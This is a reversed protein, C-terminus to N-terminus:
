RNEPMDSTNKDEFEIEFSINDLNRFWIFYLCVSSAAFIGCAIFFSFYMKIQFLMILMYMSVIWCLGFPLALLDNRHEIRMKERLSPKLRERFPKWFGFPKTKLYYQELVQRDTPKSMLTATICCVATASFLTVFQLREDLGPMFLRQLTAFLIGSLTGVSFGNANFRWWYFKLISPVMLGANLGMVIWGWIDNISKLTFAFLFGAAVLVFTFIYSAFILEKNSAKPRIVNQYLDRTFFGAAANVVSDFSCMSSAVLAVMIIGRFGSPIKAFLVGPMIAEPNINGQFSLMKVKDVWNDGLLQRLGTILDQYKDPQLAITNVIDTWRLETATPIATKIMDAAQSMVGLDPFYDKVLFIGLIAFAMMLPWRVSMFIAWFISLLGCEKDSRAAFFKPDAGSASGLLINNTLAILAFGLLYQYNEFGPLLTTKVSPLSSFWDINTSVQQALSTFDNTSNIYKNAIISVGVAGIFVLISQFVDTIVVGYFGSFVTYFTVVGMFILSCMFPSFPLFMALFIGLGKIFLGLLGVTGILGAFVSILRTTQGGIDSGFRFKMYEAGTMCGSRRHWKGTWLMMIILILGAGGRFEVYIGRPGLMYLFAVIMMSGTLSVWSAMGSFGLLWWPLRRGGLFYDELSGAAKKQLVIGVVILVLLYIGFICYDAISFYGM